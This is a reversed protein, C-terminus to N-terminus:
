QRGRAADRDAQAGLRFAAVVLALGILDVVFVAAFVVVFVTPM